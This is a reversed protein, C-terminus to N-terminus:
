DYYSSKSTKTAMGIKVPTYIAVQQIVKETQIACEHTACICLVQVKANNPNVINVAAVAYLLTKGTGTTSVIYM